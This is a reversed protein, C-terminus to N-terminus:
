ELVEWSTTTQRSEGPYGVPNVVVKTQDIVMRASEHTHGAMWWVVYPKMLYELDTYFGSNLYSYAYVPHILKKSPLHHTVVVTPVEEELCSTLWDLDQQHLSVLEQRSKKMCRGDNMGRYALESPSSWLTCGLFRLGTVSDTWSERILLRAGVEQCVQRATAEVEPISHTYYEHNGLVVVLERCSQKAKILVERYTPSHPHGIDGALVTIDSQPFPLSRLPTGFESHIDSVCFM